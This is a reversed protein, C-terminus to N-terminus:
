AWSIFNAELVLIRIASEAEKTHRTLQVMKTKRRPGTATERGRRGHGARGGPGVAPAQQPQRRQLHDAGDPAGAAHVAEEGGPAIPRHGGILSHEGEKDLFPAM